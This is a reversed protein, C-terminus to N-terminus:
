FHNNIHEILGRVLQSSVMTPLEEKNDYLIMADKPNTYTGIEVLSRYKAKNGVNQDSSLVMLDKKQFDGNVVPIYDSRDKNYPKLYKVLYQGLEICREITEQVANKRYMYFAGRKYSSYEADNGNVH